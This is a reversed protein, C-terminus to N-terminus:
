VRFFLSRRRGSTDREGCILLHDLRSYRAAICCKDMQKLLAPNRFLLRIRNKKLAVAGGPRPLCGGCFARATLRMPPTSRFEIPKTGVGTFDCVRSLGSLRVKPTPTPPPLHELCIGAGSGFWGLQALRGSGAETYARYLTGRGEGRTMEAEPLPHVGAAVGPGAM